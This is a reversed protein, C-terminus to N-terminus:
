DQNTNSTDKGPQVPDGEQEELEPTEGNESLLKKNEEFERQKELRIQEEEYMRQEDVKKKEEEKAKLYELRRSVDDPVKFGNVDFFKSICSNELWTIDDLPDCTCQAKLRINRDFPCQKLNMFGQNDNYGINGFFQLKTRDQLLTVAVTRITSDEWAEYYIGCTKDYYSALKQYAESRFFNLDGIEFRTRIQCGNFTEGQDDSMFEMLHKPAVATPNEEIYQLTRSWLTPYGRVQSKQAFAFGYTKDHDKLYRFPDFGIDCFMQSGIDVRMYYDYRQLPEINFIDKAWFRQLHKVRQSKYTNVNKQRLIKRADKLRSKDINSPYTLTDRRSAVHYLAEGSTLASTMRRFMKSQTTDGIFLWDYGYRKNFRDEVSRITKLATHLEMNRAFMIIVGKERVPVLEVGNEGEVNKVEEFHATTAASKKSSTTASPDMLSVSEVHNQVEWEAFSKWSEIRANILDMKESLSQLSQSGYEYSEASYFYLLSGCLLSLTIAALVRPRRVDLRRTAHTFGRVMIVKKKQRLIIM